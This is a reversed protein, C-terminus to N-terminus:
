FARDKPYHGWCSLIELCPVGERKRVRYVFRHSDIIELTDWGSLDRTLRKGSGGSRVYTLLNIIIKTANPDDAIWREFEDWAESGWVVKM